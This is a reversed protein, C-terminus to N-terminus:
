KGTLCKTNDGLFKIQPKYGCLAAQALEVKVTNLVKGATNNAEAAIPLEVSGDRVGCYMDLLDSRMEVVNTIKM